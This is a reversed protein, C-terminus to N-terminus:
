PVQLAAALGEADIVHPPGCAISTLSAAFAAVHIHHDHLGPLLLGGRAEFVPETGSPQLMGIASIRGREIRVDGRGGDELEAGLILM